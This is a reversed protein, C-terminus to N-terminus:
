KRVPYALQREEALKSLGSIDCAVPYCALQAWGPSTHSEVSFLGLNQSPMNELTNTDREDNNNVSRITEKGSKFNLGTM